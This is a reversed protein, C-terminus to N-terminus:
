LQSNVVSGFYAKDGLALFRPFAARLLVPKNIRIERQGWGFRSAKDQVVAMVRYTTLAEPLTVEATAHGKADTPLSGLWFALVRFDKRVPTGPGAEAGGGGGEDAGKPTIVRRSIVKQRSDENMVQLAKDIWVSELISPTKYATLSLVGYDVAWLTVEAQDPRGQIDKVAVDVKAKSAPRYEEKDTSVAVDLRKTTDEVKLECYGLRFAPKGPDSSDKESFGETRGKVLLVSVFVNPINAETLPVTVTQQTSTLEFTKSTKM